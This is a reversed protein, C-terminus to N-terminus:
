SLGRSKLSRAESIREWTNFGSKDRVSGLRTVMPPEQIVTTKTFMSLDPRESDSPPPPRPPAKIFRTPLLVEPLLIDQDLSTLSAAPSTPTSMSGQIRHLPEKKIQPSSGFSEYSEYPTGITTGSWHRSIRRSNSSIQSRKSDLLTIVPKLVSSCTLMVSATSHCQTWIAYPIYDFTPDADKAL